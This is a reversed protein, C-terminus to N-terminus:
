KEEIFKGTSAAYSSIVILRKWKPWKQVTKYNNSVIKRFYNNKRKNM